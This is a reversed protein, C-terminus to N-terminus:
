LEDEEDSDGNEDRRHSKISVFLEEEGRYDVGTLISTKERRREHRARSSFRQEISVEFEGVRDKSTLATAISDFSSSKSGKDVMWSYLFDLIGPSITENSFSSIADDASSIALFLDLLDQIDNRVPSSLKTDQVGKIEEYVVVLCAVLGDSIITTMGSFETWIDMPIQKLAAAAAATVKENLRESIQICHIMQSIPLIFLKRNSENGSTANHLLIGLTHCAGWAHKKAFSRQKWSMNIAKGEAIDLALNLKKTLIIITDSYLDGPMLIIHNSEDISQLLNLLHRQTRIANGVVKDNGDELCDRVLACLTLLSSNSADGTKEVLASSQLSLSLNGICYLAMSRVGPNEDKLAITMTDLVNGVISRLGDIQVFTEGHSLDSTSEISVSCCESCMNGIAKCAKSRVGAVSEGEKVCRHLLHHFHDSSEKLLTAWDSRIFLGYTEASLSRVGSNTDALAQLLNSGFSESVFPSRDDLLFDNRGEIYHQVFQLGIQRKKPNVDGLLNLVSSAFKQFTWGSEKGNNLISPAMRLVLMLLTGAQQRVQENTGIFIDDCSTGDDAVLTSLLCLLFKQNDVNDLWKEMPRSLPILDGMSNITGGTGKVFVRMIAVDVTIESASKSLRKVLVMRMANLLDTLVLALSKDCFFPDTQIMVEVISFLGIVISGSEPEVQETNITTKLAILLQRIAKAVRNPLSTTGTFTRRGERQTSLGFWLKLPMTSILAKSAEIAAKKEEVSGNEIFTVLLSSSSSATSVSSTSKLPSSLPDYAVMTEELFFAWQGAMKKPFAQALSSLLQLVDIRLKLGDSEKGQEDCAGNIGNGSRELLTRIRRATSAMNLVDTGEKVSGKGRAWRERDILCVAGLVDSFCRCITAVISDDNERLLLGQLLSLLRLRLPNTVQQEDGDNTIDLVLPALIASAQQKHSVLNSICSLTAPFISRCMMKRRSQEDNGSISTDSSSASEVIPVLLHRVAREATEEAPLASGFKLFIAGLCQLMSTAIPVATAPTDDVLTISSLRLVLAEVCKNTATVHFSSYPVVNSGHAMMKLTEATMDYVLPEVGNDHGDAGSAGLTTCSFASTNNMHTAICQISRFLSELTWGMRKVDYRLWGQGQQTQLTVLLKKIPATDKVEQDQFASLKQELQRLNHDFAQHHAGDDIGGGRRLSSADSPRQQQHRPQWRQNCTTKRHDYSGGATGDMSRNRGSTNNRSDGGRGRNGIRSSNNGGSSSGWGDSASGPRPRYRRQQQNAEGEQTRSRDSDSKLGDWRSM